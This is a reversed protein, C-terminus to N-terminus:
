LKKVRKSWWVDHKDKGAVGYHVGIHDLAGQCKVVVRRSATVSVPADDDYSDLEEKCPVVIHPKRSRVLEIAIRSAVTLVVGIMGPIAYMSFTSM